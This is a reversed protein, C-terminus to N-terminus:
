YLNGWEGPPDPFIFILLNNKIRIQMVGIFFMSDYICVYLVQFIRRSMRMMIKKVMMRSWSEQDDEVGDVVQDFRTLGKEM